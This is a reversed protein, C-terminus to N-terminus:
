RETQAGSGDCGSCSEPDCWPLHVTVVGEQLRRQLWRPWDSLAFTRKSAGSRDVTFTDVGVAVVDWHTRMCINAAWWVELQTKRLPRPPLQQGHADFLPELGVWLDDDRHPLFEEWPRDPTGRRTVPGLKPDRPLRPIPATPASTDGPERGPFAAEVRWTGGRKVLIWAPIRRETGVGTPSAELVEGLAAVADRGLLYILDDGNCRGTKRERLLRKRLHAASSSLAESASGTQAPAPLGVGHIGPIQGPSGPFAAELRLAIDAMWLQTEDAILGPDVGQARLWRGTEVAALVDTDTLPPHPGPETAPDHRVIVIRM